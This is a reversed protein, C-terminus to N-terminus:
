TEFCYLVGQVSERLEDCVDVCLHIHTSVSYMIAM